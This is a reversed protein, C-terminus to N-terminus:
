CFRQVTDVFDSGFGALDELKKTKELDVVADEDTKCFGGVFHQLDDLRVDGVAIRVELGDPLENVLASVALNVLLPNREGVVLDDFIVESFVANHTHLIQDVLDEGHSRVELLCAVEQPWELQAIGETAESRPLELVKHLTTIQPIPLILDISKNSLHVLIAVPLTLHHCRFSHPLDSGKHAYTQTALGSCHSM